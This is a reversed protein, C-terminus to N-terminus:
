RDDYTFLIGVAGRDDADADGTEDGSESGSEADGDGEGEAGRGRDLLRYATVAEEIPLRRGILREVDIEGLLDWAVSLRRDADWRGRLSPDVTSVQSSELRVRSRHFRGGLDLDVRKDGYWSGIIVRGDYGTVSVADDLAAPNGSLELTLDAAPEEGDGPDLRDTAAAPPVSEDAGFARSLARREPIVDVTILRDLPFRALLATTLLGVIGQGFVAVREGVLPRGDMALNVATEVNPLFAARGPDLGPPVFRLDAPDVLFHSEHPHFCFVTEGLLADDVDAGVAEVDGVAAYGYQLPYDLAGSLSGISEDAPLDTPADGRYILLETGPSIASVATRVRVEGPDPDPIPRERVAVEEPGVFYLSRRSM